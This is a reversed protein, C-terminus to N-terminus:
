PNLGYKKLIEDTTSLSTMEVIDDGDLTIDFQEEILMIFRMHNMSDWDEMDQFIADESPTAGFTETAINALASLLTM